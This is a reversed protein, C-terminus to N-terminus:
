ATMRDCHYVTICAQSSSARAFLRLIMFACSGHLGHQDPRTPSDVTPQSRQLDWPSLYGQRHPAQFRACSTTCSLLSMLSDLSGIGWFVTELLDLGKVLRDMIDMIDM